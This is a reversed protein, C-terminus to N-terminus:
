GSARGRGYVLDRLGKHMRDVPNMGEDLMVQLVEDTYNARMRARIYGAPPGGDWRVGPIREVAQRRMADFRSESKRRWWDALRNLLM